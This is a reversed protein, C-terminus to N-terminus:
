IVALNLVVTADAGGVAAPLPLINPGSGALTRPDATGAMTALTGTRLDWLIQDGDDVQLLAFHGGAIVVSSSAGTLRATARVGEFTVVALREPDALASAVGWTGNFTGIGYGPLAVVHREGTALNWWTVTGGTVRTGARSQDFRYAWADQGVLAFGASGPLERTPNDARYIGGGGDRRDWIVQGDLLAMTGVNQPPALRVTAVEAGDSASVVRIENPGDTGAVTPLAVLRGDLLWARDVTSSPEADVLRIAAGGTLLFVSGYREFGASQQVVFSDTGLEGIVHFAAGGPLRAPLRRVAQPWVKEAPYANAILAGLDLPRETPATPPSATAPTPARGATSLSAVAALVAAVALAAGGTAAALRWQGVRRSRAIAAEALDVRSPALTLTGVELARGLAREFADPKIDDPM